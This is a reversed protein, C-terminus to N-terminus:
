LLAVVKARSRSVDIFVGLPLPLLSPFLSLLKGSLFFLSISSKAIDAGFFRSRITGGELAVELSYPGDSAADCCM